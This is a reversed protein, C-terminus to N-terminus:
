HLMGILQELLDKDKEFLDTIADVTSRRMDPDTLDPHPRDDDSDYPWNPNGQLPSRGQEQGEEGHTNELDTDSTEAPLRDPAVITSESGADSDGQEVDATETSEPQEAGEDKSDKEDPHEYVVEGDCILRRPIPPQGVGPRTRSM